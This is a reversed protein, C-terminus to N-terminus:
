LGLLTSRHEAYFKSKEELDTISNFKTHIEEANVSAKNEESGVKITPSAPVGVTAVIKVAEVAASKEKGEHEAILANFDSIQKELDKIKTDRAEIDALATALSESATKGDAKLTEVLASQETFDKNLKAIESELNTITEAHAKRQTLIDTINM